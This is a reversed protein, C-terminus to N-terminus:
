KVNQELIEVHEKEALNEVYEIFAQQAKEGQYDMFVQAKVSDYPANQYRSAKNAQYFNRVDMTDIRIEPMVKDLVYKNILLQKFFEQHQKLIEPDNDYNERIAARYMLEMGVYQKLYDAKNGTVSLEQQIEAPLTQIQAEVESLWISDTGIRAVVADGEMKPGADVDTAASLERRADLLQGSRELAAVLNRSAENVFSGNPDLTRARIYYAAAQRYDALNEFYIKGILYNINARTRTELHSFELIKQYEEIAAAYLKTDRLEGALKKHQEVLEATDASDQCSTLAFLVILGSALIVVRNM